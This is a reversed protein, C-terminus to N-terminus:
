AIPKRDAEPAAAAQLVGGMTMVLLGLAVLGVDFSDFKLKFSPAADVAVFSHLTPSLMCRFAMAYLLGVGMKRLGEGVRHTFSHRESHERWARALQFCVVALILEPLALLLQAGVARILTFAGAWGPALDPWAGLGAMTADLAASAALLIAVGLAIRGCARSRDLAAAFPIAANAM